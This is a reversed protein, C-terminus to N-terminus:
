RKHQAEEMRRNRDRLFELSHYYEIVTMNKANLHLESGILICSTEYDKDFSVEVGRDGGFSKPKAFTVIENSLKRYSESESEILGLSEDIKMMLLRKLKTFYEKRQSDDFMSPFYLRIEEDIKKKVEEVLQSLEKVTMTGLRQMILQLNDDTLDTVLEGDIAYVLSAFALGKPSIGQEVLHVGQRLNELERVVSAKDDNKMFEVARMLHKDVDAVTGGIGGDVLLNRNFRHFRAIPMDDISDYIDIKHGEIDIRRM